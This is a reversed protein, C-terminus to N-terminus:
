DIPPHEPLASVNGRCVCDRLLSHVIEDDFADGVWGGVWGGVGM